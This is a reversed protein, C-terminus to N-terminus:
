IRARLFCEQMVGVWGHQRQGTGYRGSALSAILDPVAKREVCIEPSLIYDGVKLHMHPSPLRWLHLSARLRPERQTLHLLRSFLQQGLTLWMGFMLGTDFM